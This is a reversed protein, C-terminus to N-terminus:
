YNVIQLSSIGNSCYKCQEKKIKAMRENKVLIVFELALCLSISIKHRINDICIDVSYIRNFFIIYFKLVYAVNFSPLLGGM